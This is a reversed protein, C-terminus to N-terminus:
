RTPGLEAVVQAARAQWTHACRLTALVSVKAAIIAPDNSLAQLLQALAGADYPVTWGAGHQEVFSGALTGRSAIVPRQAGIYEFLKVPAAFDRYPHPEVFLMCVDAREFLPVLEAGSLHVVRIRGDALPYAGRVANWEVERTCVTMEVDPSAAVAEFLAHMRYHSGMGGVYLLHLREGTRRGLPQNVFGPPLAAMRSPPMWPVHPAMEMSPLYLRDVFQRYRLLDYHYFLKAGRAKWWPLADAYEPFRWYIDRYFLGIRAGRRKLRRFLAFDLRPHLPLHHRETLLTPETSSEAYVLDYQVGKRLREDIHRIADARDHAYGTVADVQIGLSRFAELMRFPRIGSAATADPRVPLPHHFVMRM